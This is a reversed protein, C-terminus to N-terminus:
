SSGWDLCGLKKRSTVEFGSRSLHQNIMFFLVCHHQFILHSFIKPPRFLFNSVSKFILHLCAFHLFIHLESRSFDTHPMSCAQEENRPHSQWDSSVATKLLNKVLFQGWSEKGPRLSAEFMKTCGPSPDGGGVWNVFGLLLLWNLLAILQEAPYRSVSMYKFCFMLAM